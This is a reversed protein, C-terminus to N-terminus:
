ATKQNVERIAEVHTADVDSKVLVLDGDHQVQKEIAASVQAAKEKGEFM